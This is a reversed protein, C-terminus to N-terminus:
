GMHAGVAVGFENGTAGYVQESGGDQDESYEFRGPFSGGQAKAIVTGRAPISGDM